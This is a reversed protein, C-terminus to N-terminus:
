RKSRRLILYVGHDRDLEWGDAALDNLKKEMAKATKDPDYGASPNEPNIFVNQYVVIKYEWKAAGAPAKPQTSASDRPNWLFLLASIAAVLALALQPRSFQAM